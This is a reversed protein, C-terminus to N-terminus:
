ELLGNTKMKLYSGYLQPYVELEGIIEQNMVNQASIKIITLFDMGRLDGMREVKGLIQFTSGGVVIEYFEKAKMKSCIENYCSIGLIDASIKTEEDYAFNKGTIINRPHNKSMYYLVSEVKNWSGYFSKLIRFLLRTPSYKINNPLDEGSNSHHLHIEIPQIHMIDRLHLKHENILDVLIARLPLNFAFHEKFYGFYHENLKSFLFKQIDKINDRVITRVDFEFPETSYFKNIYGKFDVEAGYKHEYIKRINELDCVFIIKDFGFKNEIDVDGFNQNHVSFVNFLRFIHDPDLRDLDDILLVTKKESKVKLEKILAYILQTLNDNEYASGEKDAISKLYDFLVKADDTTTEEIFSNFDKQTKYIETILKAVPKGITSELQLISTLINLGKFDSKLFPLLAEKISPKFFELSIQGQYNALLEFVIDFKILEFVDKNNSVSYNIPKLKVVIYDSDNGKFFGELFTTKGAGFPASFLINQNLEEKIHKKFGSLTFEFFPNEM